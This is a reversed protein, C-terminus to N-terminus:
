LLQWRKLMMLEVDQPTYDMEFTKLNARDEGHLWHMYMKRVKYGCQELMWGYTSLQLRYIWYNANPLHTFPELFTEGRFGETSIEKCTKYDHIDVYKGEKFVKDAQGAVKYKDNYILLEPYFHNSDFDQLALIDNQSARYTVEEDDRLQQSHFAANELELHIKSGLECADNKEKEWKDLYQQKRIAIEERYPPAVMHINGKYYNVVNEWGGASNKFFWWKKAKELTDKIAKYDSWYDAKFEPVFHHILTTVSVYKEKTGVHEYTHVDDKYGVSGAQKDYTM